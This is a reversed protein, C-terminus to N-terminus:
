FLRRIKLIVTQMASDEEQSEHTFRGPVDLNGEESSALEITDNQEYKGEFKTVETDTVIM